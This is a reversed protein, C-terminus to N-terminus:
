WKKANALEEYLYCYDDYRMRSIAGEELAQKVACGPEHIHSCGNFRCQNEYDAFEPFYFRLEEKDIDELYLSSFGPTDMLFTEEGLYILESHRTTHRGRKIKESVAGTEMQTKPSITNLTSSKGVGSPGAMVTTKGRLLERIEPIGEGERASSFLVRCGSNEYDQRLQEKEEESALDMKNFCIIVPIQQKEMMILFRNLLQFNPEPEHVAFIVLAQDVNAVMPRILQNKRKHIVTLNGTKEEESIVDIDVIDGVNPKMKKNRFIGKARCEYLGAGEVEVYYFGGIGKMIRGTM